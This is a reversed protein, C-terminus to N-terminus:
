LEVVTCPTVTVGNHTERDADARADCAGKSPFCYDAVPRHDSALFSYCWAPPPANTRIGVVRGAAASNTTACATLLAFALARM